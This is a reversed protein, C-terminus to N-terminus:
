SLFTIMVEKTIRVLSSPLANIGIFFWSVSSFSRMFSSITLKEFENSEGSYDEYSIESASGLSFVVIVAISISIVAGSLLSYSIKADFYHFTISIGYVILWILPEYNNWCNEHDGINGGRRPSSSDCYSDASSSIARGLYFILTASLLINGGSEMCGHVFGMYPGVTLRCIPYGGGVFLHVISNATSRRASVDSGM